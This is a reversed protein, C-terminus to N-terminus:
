KRSVLKYIARPIHKKFSQNTFESLRESLHNSRKYPHYNNRTYPGNEYCHEPVYELLMDTTGCDNCFKFGQRTDKIYTGGCLCTISHYDFPEAKYIQEEKSEFLKECLQQLFNIRLM